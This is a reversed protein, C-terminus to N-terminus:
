RAPSCDGGAACQEIQQVMEDTPNAFAFQYCPGIPFNLANENQLVFAIYDIKPSMRACWPGACTMAVTIPVEIEDTFGKETLLKGTFNAVIQAEIPQGLPDPLKTPDFDFEGRLIVFNKDSESAYEYAAAVDPRICSLAAAPGAAISLAFLALSISKFM